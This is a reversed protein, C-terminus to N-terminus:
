KPPEILWLSNGYLDVIQAQIGYPAEGPEMDITVGKSRLEDYTKRCDDVKFVFLPNVLLNSRESRKPRM